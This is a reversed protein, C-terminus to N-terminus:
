EEELAEGFARSWSISVGGWLKVDSEDTPSAFKTFGDGNIMLHLEPAISFIGATIPLRASLDLATFGDDEFNSSEDTPDDPIGQGASLGAM